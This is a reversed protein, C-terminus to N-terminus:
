ATVEIEDLNRLFTIMNPKMQISGDLSTVDCFNHQELFTVLKNKQHISIGCKDQLEKTNHPKGDSLM